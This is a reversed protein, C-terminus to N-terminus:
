NNLLTNDTVNILDGVKETDRGRAEDCQSRYCLQHSGLGRLIRPGRTLPSVRDARGPGAHAHSPQPGEREAGERPASTPLCGDPTLVGSCSQPATRAPLLQPWCGVATSVSHTAKSAARWGGGAKADGRGQRVGEGVECSVGPWFWRGLWEPFGAWLLQPLRHSETALLWWTEPSRHHSTLCRVGSGACRSPKRLSTRSM